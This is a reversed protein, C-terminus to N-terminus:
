LVGSSDLRFVANLDSSAIYVNGGADAVVGLVSGLALELGPAPTAPPAGGAITSIVYQQASAATSALLGLSTWVTKMTRMSHRMASLDNSRQQAPWHLESASPCRPGAGCLSARPCQNPKLRCIGTCERVM